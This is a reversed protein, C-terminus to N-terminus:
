WRWIIPSDGVRGPMEMITAGTSTDAALNGEQDLAVVGVTGHEDDRTPMGIHDIRTMFGRPVM